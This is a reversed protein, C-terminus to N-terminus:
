KVDSVGDPIVFVVCRRRISRPPTKRQLITKSKLRRLVTWGNAVLEDVEAHPSKKQTSTTKRIRYEKRLDREEFVLRENFLKQLQEHDKEGQSVM